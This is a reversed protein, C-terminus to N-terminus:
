AGRLALAEADGPTGAAPRVQVVFRCRPAGRSQCEVETGVAEEGPHLRTVVGCLFGLALYCTTSHAGEAREFLDEGHFEYRRGVVSAIRLIGLGMYAYADPLRALDIDEGERALRGGLRLLVLSDARSEELFTRAIRKVLPRAVRSAMQAREAEKRARVDRVVAVLGRVEQDARSFPAVSVEVPLAPADPRPATEAEWLRTERPASWAADLFSADLFLGAAALGDLSGEGLRFLARAAPNAYTVAGEPSLVLVADQVAALFTEVRAGAEEVARLARASRLAAAAEAAVVELLQLDAPGYAERTRSLGEVRLTGLSRGSVDPLAAVLPGKEPDPGDEFDRTWSPGGELALTVRGARFLRGCTEMVRRAVADVEPEGVLAHSVEALARRVEVEREGRAVLRVHERALYAFPLLAAVALLHVSWLASVALGLSLGLTVHLAAPVVFRERFVAWTRAGERRAFVGAVLGLTTTTYLVLAAALCLLGPLGLAGGAAYAGIAVSTALLMTAVNFAAKLFPRRTRLGHLAMAPAAFLLVLPAPLAVLALFVLAEDPALAVRHGRWQFLVLNHLVVHAGVGLAVVLALRAPDLLADLSFPLGALGAALLAAGALCVAVLYPRASAEPDPPPGSAVRRSPM